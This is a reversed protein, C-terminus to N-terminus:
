LNVMGRDPTREITKKYSTSLWPLFSVSGHLFGAGKIFDLHTSQLVFGNRGVAVCLMRMEGTLSGASM